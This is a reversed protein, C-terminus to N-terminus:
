KKDEANTLSQLVCTMMAIDSANRLHYQTAQQCCIFQGTQMALGGSQPSLSHTAHYGTERQAKPCPAKLTKGPILNLHQQSCTKQPMALDVM